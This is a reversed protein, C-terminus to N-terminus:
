NELYSQLESNGGIFKNNQFIIPVTNHDGIVKKLNLLVSSKNYKQTNEIDIFIFEDEPKIIKSLLRISSKCFPCSTKGYLVWIQNSKNFYKEYFYQNPMKIVNQYNKLVLTQNLRNDDLCYSYTKKNLNSNNNILEVLTKM